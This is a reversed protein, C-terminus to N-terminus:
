RSGDLISVQRAAYLFDECFDAQYKEWLMLPERVNNFALIIAFMQRLQKPFQMQSLVNHLCLTALWNYFALVCIV